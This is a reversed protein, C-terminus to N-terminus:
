RAPRTAPILFLVDGVSAMEDSGAIFIGHEEDFRLVDPSKDLIRALAPAGMSKVGCDVVLRNPTRSIVTTAVTLSHEFGPAMATHFMDMVVYTGAQIETIGPFAATWEWTATGGASRVHCPIGARELRDAVEVLFSM